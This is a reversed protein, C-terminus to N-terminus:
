KFVKGISFAKGLSAGVQHYDGGFNFVIPDIQAMNFGGKFEIEEDAKIDEIKGVFLTHSDLDLTKHLSLEAVIPCEGV